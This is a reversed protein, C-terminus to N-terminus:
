LTNITYINYKVLEKLLKWNSSYISVSTLFVRNSKKTTYGLDLFIM